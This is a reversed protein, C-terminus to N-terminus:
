AVQRIPGLWPELGDSSVDWFPGRTALEADTLLCEAFARRLDDRVDDERLGTVLIRTMAQSRGWEGKVGVSLQGGAGDWVAIAGPRSAVWFCGRTRFAGGGLDNARERLRQPHFPRDATLELSWVHRGEAARSAGEYVESVWSETAEHDHLGPVLQEASMQPWERTVLAGPRALHRVLEVAEDPTEGFLAVLDAHEVM